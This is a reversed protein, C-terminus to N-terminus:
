GRASELMFDVFARVKASLHRNQPYLISFPRSRGGYDQLVEVLRGQRLDDEVIFRYIQFLGGGARALTVCGLVDDSVLARSDFAFDVDKGRDRFIWAMSRGTRPLIFQICDHQRLAELSDPVGRRQLYSPAAVVVLEADELRRAVLGSDPPEGLRIALDYGEDVFDIQRNSINTEVRIGPYRGLFEPLCPLVRYHGYTTPVSIRLLGSPEAQNGTVLREAEDIEALALRCREFYAQGDETLRI